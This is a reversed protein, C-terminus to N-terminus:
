QYLLMAKYMITWLARVDWTICGYIVATSTNCHRFVIIVRRGPVVLVYSLLAGLVVSQPLGAEGARVFSSGM